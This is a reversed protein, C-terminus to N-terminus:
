ESADYAKKMEPLLDKAQGLLIPLTTGWRKTPKRCALHVWWNYKRSRGWAGRVMPPAECTCFQTPKGYVGVVDSHAMAVAAQNIAGAGAKNNMHDVFRTAAEDNDFELVVIRAM